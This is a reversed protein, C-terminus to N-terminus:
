SLKTRNLTLSLSTLPTHTHPPPPPVQMVVCYPYEAYGKLLADERFAANDSGASADDGDYCDYTDIIFDRSFDNSRRTEVERLYSDRYRMFKMAVKLDPTDSDFSKYRAMRLCCTASIHEPAGRKVDYRGHLLRARTMMDKCAPTAIDISRRGQADVAETLWEAHRKYRALVLAVVEVALAATSGVLTPWAYVHQAPDTNEVAEGQGQGQESAALFPLCDDVLEFLIEASVNRLQGPQAQLIVDIATCGDYDREKAAHRHKLVASLLASEPAGSVIAWHVPLELLRRQKEADEASIRQESQRLLLWLLLLLLVLVVFGCVAFLIILNLSLTDSSSNAGEDAGCASVDSPYLATWCDPYCLLDNSGLSITMYGTDTDCYRAAMEGSLQNNSLTLEQLYPIDLFFTTLLGSISNAGLNLKYLVDLSAAAGETLPPTSGTLLNNSLDVSELATATFLEAPISGGICNYSLDLTQMFRLLGLSAPLTGVLELGPLEIARVQLAICHSDSDSVSVSDSLCCLTM